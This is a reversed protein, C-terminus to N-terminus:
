NVPFLDATFFAPVLSLCILLLARMISCYTYHMRAKARWEIMRNYGIIKNSSLSPELDTHPHADSRSRQQGCIDSSVKQRAHCLYNCTYNNMIMVNTSRNNSKQIFFTFQSLLTRLLSICLEFKRSLCDTKRFTHSCGILDDSCCIMDDSCCIM